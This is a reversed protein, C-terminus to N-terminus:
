FGLELTAPPLDRREGVAPVIFNEFHGHTWYYFKFQEAELNTDFSFRVKSARQDATLDIVEITLGELDIREGRQMPLRRDRYLEMFPSSLIGEAYTLELTNAATRQASVHEPGFSLARFRRPLPRGDIRRLLQVLKVAFYDPATVFVADHDAVDDAVSETARALPATVAIGWTTLPLTIPSVIMHAFFLMGGVERSVRVLGTPSVGRLQLVHLEWLQALLGMAGFSTFLLQRNHPYTSAAPIISVLAGLLWFWAMRNRKLLPWLTLCLAITFACAFVLLVRAWPAPWVSYFEAPPALFQGLTLIPARELLASVYAVPDRGPDIYLGSGYAGLGAKTYLARWIVTIVLYPAVTLGRRLLSGREVCLAHAFLYGAIAITSEGSAMAVAYLVYSGLQIPWSKRSRARLHESLCLIGLLATILSHRNCIYGAVFGHTHDFAFLLAALGGVVTGLAHRYMSTTAIILLGLWVLNHVHMLAASHPWLAFDLRHTLQGFPRLLRILLHDYTWWPAWGHEIQWHTDEPVGNTLGYGGAYLDFLHKSGPYDGYIYRGVHDDLYFGMFLCSSCLLVGFLALWWALKPRELFRLLVQDFKSLSGAASTDTPAETASYVPANAM